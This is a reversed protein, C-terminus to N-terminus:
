SVDNDEKFLSNFDVREFVELAGGRTANYIKVGKKELKKKIFKYGRIQNKQMIKANKVGRSAEINKSGDFYQLKQSYDCDVGLLYIEKIGMCQAINICMNVVTHAAFHGFILNSSYKLKESEIEVLHNLYSVPVLVIKKNLQDKCEIKDKFWDTIFAEDVSCKTLDYNDNESKYKDLTTLDLLSYYTPRWKTKDFCKFIGNVSFTIECKLKELDEIKLSPGTGVIFARKGKHRNKIKKLVKYRFPWLNSCILRFVGKIYFSVYNKIIGSECFWKHKVRYIPFFMKYNKQEVEMDYISFASTFKAKLEENHRVNTILLIYEENINKLEEPSIIKIDNIKKGQKSISSDIIALINYKKGYKYLFENCVDGAGVLVIKKGKAQQRFDKWTKKTIFFNIKKGELYEKYLFGDISRM